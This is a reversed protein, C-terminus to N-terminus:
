EPNALQFTLKTVINKQAVNENNFQAPTYKWQSIANITEEEFGTLWGDTPVRYIIEINEPTGEPSVDFRAYTCAHYVAANSITPPWQPPTREIPTANIFGPL